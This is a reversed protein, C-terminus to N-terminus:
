YNRLSHLDQTIGWALRHMLIHVSVCNQNLKDPLESLLLGSLKPEVTYSCPLLNLYM